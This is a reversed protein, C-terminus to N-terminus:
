EFARRWSWRIGYAFPVVFLVILLPAAVLTPITLFEGFQIKIQNPNQFVGAIIWFLLNWSFFISTGTVALMPKGSKNQGAILASAMASALVSGSLLTVELGIDAKLYGFNYGVYNPDLIGRFPAASNLWVVALHALGVVLSSITRKSRLLTAVFAIVSIISVIAGIYLWVQNSM